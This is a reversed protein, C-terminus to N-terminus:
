ARLPAYEPHRQLWSEAYSCQPVVTWGQERAHDFATRVLQSAVGRGGIEAPVWTHTITMAAGHQDYDLYAKSDEVTTAFRRVDPDHQIRTQTEPM